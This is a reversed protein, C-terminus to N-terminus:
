ADALRERELNGAARAPPRAKETFPRTTRRGRRLDAGRAHHRELEIRQAAGQAVTYAGHHRGVAPSGRRQGAAIRERVRRAGGDRRGAGFDADAGAGGSGSGTAIACGRAALGAAASARLQRRADLRLELQLDIGLDIELDIGLEFDIALRTAVDLVGLEGGLVLGVAARGRRRTGSQLSADRTTRARPRERSPM